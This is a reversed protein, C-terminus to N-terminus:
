QSLLSSSYPFLQNVLYDEPFDKSVGVFHEMCLLKLMALKNYVCELQYRHSSLILFYVDLLMM